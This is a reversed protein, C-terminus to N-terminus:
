RNEVEMMVVPPAEEAKKWVVPVPTSRSSTLGDGGVAEAAYCYPSGPVASKDIYNAGATIVFSQVSDCTKGRYIIYHDVPLASGPAIMVIVGHQAPPPPPTPV